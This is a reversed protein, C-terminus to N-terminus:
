KKEWPAKYGEPATVFKVYTPDSDYVEKLQEQTAVKVPKGDWEVPETHHNLVKTQKGVRYLTIKPGREKLTFVADAKPQQVPTIEAM